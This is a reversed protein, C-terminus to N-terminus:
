LNSTGGYRKSKASAPVSEPDRMWSQYPEAVDDISGAHTVAEFFDLRVSRRLCQITIAAARSLEVDMAMRKESKRHRKSLRRLQAM